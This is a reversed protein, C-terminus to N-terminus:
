QLHSIRLSGLSSPSRCAQLLPSPSPSPFQFSFRSGLVRPLLQLIKSSSSPQVTLGRGTWIAAEKLECGARLTEWLERSKDRKGTERDWDGSCNHQPSNQGPIAPFQRLYNAENSDSTQGSEDITNILTLTLTLPNKLFFQPVIM